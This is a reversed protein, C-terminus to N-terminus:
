LGNVKTTLDAVKAALDKVAVTLADVDKATALTTGDVKAVRAATGRLWSYATTKYTSDTPSTILYAWVAAPVSAKITANIKDLDSQLVTDEIRTIEARAWAIGQTWSRYTKPSGKLPDTGARGDSGLGNYGARVADLQYRAPANHECGALVCHTHQNGSWNRPWSAWAGMERALRARNDGLGGLDVAGGRTHTGGSNPDGGTCQWAVPDGYGKLVCLRRFAPMWAILCDCAVDPANYTLVPYYGYGPTSATPLTSGGM